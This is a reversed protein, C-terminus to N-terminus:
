VSMSPCCFGIQDFQDIRQIGYSTEISTFYRKILNGGIKYVYEVDVQTVVDGTVEVVHADALLRRRKEVTQPFFDEFPHFVCLGALFFSSSSYSLFASKHFPNKIIVM